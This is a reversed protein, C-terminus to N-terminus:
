KQLIPLYNNPIQLIICAMATAYHTCIPDVWSGDPRLRHARGVLEDRIAPYWESWYSGGATWMAQAAYYHGYFYHLDARANYPRPKSQMLFSLGSEVAPDKYLGACYLAVVGAATRAFAPQGSHTMYRFGGAEKSGPGEQCSKVYEICREISAKPVSIGANRAARLAMVQCITVSIDAGIETDNKEPLYRWGGKNNQSRIIVDVAARLTEHVRTRLKKEHVMGHVEALFLTGFGHSYMPGDHQHLVPRSHLYGKRVSDEQSLVYELAAQVVGGREGRGPRDGRGPQHGGAMFALAALSTIAVNGRHHGTGFSGDAHQSRVLFDLGQKIAEQAAPTIMGRTTSGDPLRDEGDGTVRRALLDLALVAGTSVILFQRRSWM